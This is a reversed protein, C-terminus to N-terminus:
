QALLYAAMDRADREPVNLQPMATQPDVAHTKTIWFILSAESNPLTGALFKREKLDKLPPGVHTDPGTVGPIRHCAQCAWQTLAVRGRVVDGVRGAAAGV